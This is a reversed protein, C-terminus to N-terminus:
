YLKKNYVELSKLKGKFGHETDGIYQLPFVLTHQIYMASENGSKNKVVRKQSQLHEVLKGDVYLATGKNDGQIAVRIWKGTEPVYNFTYSYGERKFGLKGSGEANLTVVANPSKFLVADAENGALPCFDFCVTYNYGIEPVPLEVRSNGAFTIGDAKDIKANKVQSIDYGNGSQDKQIGKGAEYKLVVEGKSPVKAMINIGPAEIMSEALQNFRTYDAGERGGTWMKEALVQMAPFARHHVDKETIKNGSHDNWVAFTGGLVQPHGAPFVQNGIRSPEWSSYLYKTNLYDYYYGAAPVIYLYGDPTSILDFGLDIM